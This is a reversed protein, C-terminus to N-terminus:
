PNKTREPSKFEWGQPTFILHVVEGSKGVKELPKENFILNLGGANGIHLYIQRVAQFSGGEGPHLIMEREPQDDVGLRIWVRETAEIKLSFPSQGMEALPEQISIPQSSTQPKMEIKEPATKKSFPTRYPHFFISFLLSIFLVGGIIWWQRQNLKEKIRKEIPTQINKTFFQDYQQLIEKPNAGVAKAYSSLFGKVYIPPPLDEYRDEELAKLFPERIKTQRALEKLTIRKSERYSRLLTGLSTRENM